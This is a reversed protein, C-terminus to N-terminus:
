NIVLKSDERVVIRKTCSEKLFKLGLILAEYKAMNNTCEFTLKYSCINTVVELPSVWLEDGVGEKNIESDFYINWAGNEVHDKPNACETMERATKEDTTM